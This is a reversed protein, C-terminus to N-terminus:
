SNILIWIKPNKIKNAKDNHVNVVRWKFCTRDSPSNFLLTVILTVENARFKPFMHLRPVKLM